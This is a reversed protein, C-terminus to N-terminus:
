SSTAELLKRAELLDPTEFGETFWGVTETLMTRAMERGGQEGQAQWFRDLSLITRLEFSRAQQRRAVDLAQEFSAEAAEGDQQPGAQQLLSGRLRHLESEYFFPRSSSVSELAEQPLFTELMELCGDIM